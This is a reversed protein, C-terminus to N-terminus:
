RIWKKISETDRDGDYETFNGYKCKFITPFSTVGLSKITAPSEESSFTLTTFPEESTEIKEWEPLFEACHGCWPAYALILLTEDVSMESIMKKPVDSGEIEQILEPTYTKGCDKCVKTHKVPVAHEATEEATEEAFGETLGELM